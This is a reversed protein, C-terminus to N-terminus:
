LGNPTLVIRSRRYDFTWNFHRLFDFGILGGDRGFVRESALCTSANQYRYPGILVESLRYCTEPENTVGDVGSFYMSGEALSVLRGSTKLNDSLTLFNDNGTDITARTVVNAAKVRIEPTGDALNVSFAFAGKSVSPELRFPDGFVLTQQALDVHVLAGALLDFGLIGDIPSKDYPDRESVALVVNSLVNDGVAITEARAFRAGRSGGSVGSYATEGLMTLGLRGAYPQYLLLQGAGSDFLFTGVRGNIAAHFIVARGAWTGRAVEIPVPDGNGFAWKPTPVPARLEDDTVARVTGSLLKYVTDRGYRYGAPARVGPAIETYDPIRVVNRRYRDEPEYTIQVFAGSSRDVALDAPIGGPPTVRVVDVPKGDIM